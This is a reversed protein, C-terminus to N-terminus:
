PPRTARHRGRGGTEEKERKDVKKGANKERERGSVRRLPCLRQRLPWFLLERRADQQPLMWVRPADGTLVTCGGRLPRFEGRQLDELAAELYQRSCRSDRLRSFPADHLWFGIWAHISSSTTERLSISSLKASLSFCPAPHIFKARTPHSDNANRSPGKM